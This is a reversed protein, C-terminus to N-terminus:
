AGPAFTELVERAHDMAAAPDVTPSGLRPDFNLDIFVEDVGADGVGDVFRMALGFALGRRLLLREDEEVM